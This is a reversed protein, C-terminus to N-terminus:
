SNSPITHSSSAMCAARQASRLSRQRHWGTTQAHHRPRFRTRESCAVGVRPGTARCNLGCSWEALLRLGIM